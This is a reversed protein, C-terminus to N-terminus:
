TAKKAGSRKVGEIKILLQNLDVPKVFVENVGLAILEQEFQPESHGTALIIPTTINAVIMSQCLQKGTMEPMEQDTFVLDITNDADMLHDIAQKGNECITVQYGKAAFFNEYLQTLLSEDDVVLIHGGTSQPPEIDEPKVIDISLKEEAIFLLSFKTGQGVTSRCSIHGHYKKMIGDIVSLGLGTGGEVSKTTFFPDFIRNILHPAIGQGSDSVDLQIQHRLNEGHQGIFQNVPPRLHIKIVGIEDGIAQSANVCLNLIIQQVDTKDALIYASELEFQTKITINSPIIPKVMEIADHISQILDIPEISMKKMTSFALIKEILASARRCSTTIKNFIFSEKSEPKVSESGLQSYGLVGSLINNFDHAVGTALSGLAELKATQRQKEQTQKGVTIDNFLFGIYDGGIYVAQCDFCQLKNTVPHVINLEDYKCGGYAQEMWKPILPLIERCAPYTVELQNGVLPKGIFPSIQSIQENAFVIELGRDKVSSHYRCILVGTQMAGILRKHVTLDHEANIREAVAVALSMSSVFVIALFIQLWFMFDQISNGYMTFPGQGHMTYWHAIGAIVLIILSVGKVRFQVAAQILLPFVLYNLPAIESDGSQSFILVAFIISFALLYGGWFWSTLKGNLQNSTERRFSLLVALLLANGLADASFWSVTYQYFMARDHALSLNIAGLISGIFSGAVVAIMFIALSELDEFWRRNQLRALLVAIILGEVVNAIAFGVSLSLAHQASLNGLMNAVFVGFLLYKWLRVPSMLLAAIFVANPPWFASMKLDPIIFFLTSLKVILFYCLAVSLCWLVQATTSQTVFTPSQIARHNILKSLLM